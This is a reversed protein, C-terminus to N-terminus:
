LGVCGLLVRLSLPSISTPSQSSLTSSCAASAGHSTSPRTTSRTSSTKASRRSSGTLSRLSVSASGWLTLGRSSEHRGLRPSLRVEIMTFIVYLKIMAQGRIAHYVRSMDVRWLVLTAVAVIVAVMLDYFHTRRFVRTHFSATVACGCAFLIRLPLYTFVYLFSDLALFVGFVFLQELKLPVVLFNQVREQHVDDTQKIDHVGFIEKYFFDALRFRHPPPATATTTTTATTTATPKSPSEDPQLSRLTPSVRPQSFDTQVVLQHLQQMRQMAPPPSQATARRSAVSVPSGTASSSVSAPPAKLRTEAQPSSPRSDTPTTTSSSLPSAAATADYADSALTLDLEPLPTSKSRRHLVPDLALPEVALPSSPAPASPAGALTELAPQTDGAAQQADDTGTTM